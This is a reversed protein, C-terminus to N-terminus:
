SNLKFIRVSNEMNETEGNLEEVAKNLGEVALIQQDATTGLQASAASTEELTASISEVATLTENKLEGIRGLGAIMENLSGTLRSVQSNIGHFANLTEKLTDEQRTVIDNANTAVFATEQTSQRIRAVIEGIRGAEKLSQDSLKRIEDAVVSFGKGSAGARAAEISANLSLLRTQEAIENIAEVIEIIADSQKELNQINGIVKQTIESTDKQKKKLDEMNQLGKKLTVDTDGAITRISGANEEQMGIQGALDSMRNFCNQSDRALSSIGQDIEAVTMAIDRSANVLVESTDSVKVSMLATQRSIALINRIMDRMGRFMSNISGALLHFEDKRKLNIDQRLDGTAAIDLIRNTRGIASSIGGSIFFGILLAIIVALMMIVMTIVKVADAQETVLVDPILAFTVSGNLASRTYIFLYDEGNYVVYDAGSAKGGRIAAQYFATETVKQNGNEEGNIISKNDATVYGNISGKGFGSKSLIGAFFNKDVDVVVYGIQKYGTNTIKKVYSIGYDSSNMKLVQDLYSHSGIWNVEQGGGTLLAYDESATFDTYFGDKLSGATSVPHGYNAFVTIDSISKDAATAALIKKQIEKYRSIEETPKDSYYKSYYRQTTEDSIIDIAKSSINTLELDFYEGMMNLSVKSSDVYNSVMGRSALFYSVVGLIIIFVAPILFAGILRVRISRGAKIKKQAKM